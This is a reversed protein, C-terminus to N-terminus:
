SQLDEIEEKLNVNRHHWYYKRGRLVGDSMVPKGNQIYYDYNWFSAGKPRRLYFETNGLKPEGLAQITVHDCVYYDNPDEKEETVYM